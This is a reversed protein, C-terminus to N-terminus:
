EMVKWDPVPKFAQNIQEDIGVEGAEQAKSFLPLLIFLSLLFSRKM